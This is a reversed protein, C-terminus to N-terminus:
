RPSIVRDWVTPIMEDDRIPIFGPEGALDPMMMGYLRPRAVGQARRGLDGSVSCGPSDPNGLQHISFIRTPDPFGHSIWLGGCRLRFPRRRCWAFLAHFAVKRKAPGASAHASTSPVSYNVTSAGLRDMDGRDGREYRKIVRPTPPPHHYRRHCAAALPTEREVCFASFM